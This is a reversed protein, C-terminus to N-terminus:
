CLITYGGGRDLQLVTENDQHFGKGELDKGDESLVDSRDKGRVDKSAAITSVGKTQERPQKSPM